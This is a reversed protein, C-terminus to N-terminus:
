AIPDHCTVLKVGDPFTVEIQIDSIMEPVGEMVDDRSLLKTGYTMLEAVSQKGDRAAEMLHMSIYAISEPYNLKVGRAKRKAALEGAFHLMLKETERPTLRMNRVESEANCHYFLALRHGAAILVELVAVV